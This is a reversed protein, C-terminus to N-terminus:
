CIGFYLYSYGECYLMWHCWKWWIERRLRWIQLLHVKERNRWVWLLVGGRRFCLLERCLFGSLDNRYVFGHSHVQSDEGLQTSCSDLSWGVRVVHPDPESSPLHKVPIYEMVQLCVLIIYVILNIQFNFPYNVWFHFNQWQFDSVRMDNWVLLVNM